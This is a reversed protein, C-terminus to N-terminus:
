RRHTKLLSVTLDNSGFTKRQGDSDPTSLFLKNLREVDM